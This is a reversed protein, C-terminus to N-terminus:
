VFRRVQVCVDAGVRGHAHGSPSPAAEAVPPMVAEIRRKGLDLANASLRYMGVSAACQGCFTDPSSVCVFRLSPSLDLMVHERCSGQYISPFGHLADCGQLGLRLLGRLVAEGLPKGM